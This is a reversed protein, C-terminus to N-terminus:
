VLSTTASPGDPPARTGAPTGHPTSSTAACPPCNCRALPSRTFTHYWSRSFSVLGKEDPRELAMRQWLPEHRSFAHCWRSAAGFGRLETAGFYGLVELLVEDPLAGLSGLGKRREDEREAMVSNGRPKVGMPHPPILWSELEDASM